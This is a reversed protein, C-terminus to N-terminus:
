SWKNNQIEALELRIIKNMMNIEENKGNDKKHKKLYRRHQILKRLYKPINERKNLNNSKKPIAINAADNIKNIVFNNIEEVNNNM